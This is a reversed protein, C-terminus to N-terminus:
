VLTDDRLSFTHMEPRIRSTKKNEDRTHTLVRASSFFILSKLSDARTCSYVCPTVQHNVLPSKEHEAEERADQRDTWYIRTRFLPSYEISRPAILAVAFDIEVWSLIRVSQLLRWRARAHNQRTCTVSTVNLYRIENCMMDPISNDKSCDRMYWIASHLHKRIIYLLWLHCTWLKCQM